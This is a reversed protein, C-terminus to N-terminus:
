HQHSTFHGVLALERHCKVVTWEKWERRGDIVSRSLLSHFKSDDLELPTQVPCPRKSSRGPRQAVTQLLFMWIRGRISSRKWTFNM